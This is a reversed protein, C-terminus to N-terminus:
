LGFCCDIGVIYYDWREVWEVFWISWNDGFYWCRGVGGWDKKDRGYREFNIMLWKDNMMLFVEWWFGMNKWIMCWICRGVLNWVFCIVMYWVKVVGWGIVIGMCFWLGVVMLIVGIDVCCCICWYEMMVWFVFIWGIRRGNFSWWFLLVIWWCRWKLVCYYGGGRWCFIWSM